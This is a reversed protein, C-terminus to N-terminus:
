IPGLPRHGQLKTVVDPAALSDKPPSVSDLKDKLDAAKTVLGAAVSPDDTTKSLRLLTAIADRTLQMAIKRMMMAGLASSLSPQNQEALFYCFHVSRLSARVSLVYL